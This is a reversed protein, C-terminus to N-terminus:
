PNAVEVNLDGASLHLGFHTVSKSFRDAWMKNIVVKAATQSCVNAMPVLETDIRQTITSMLTFTM